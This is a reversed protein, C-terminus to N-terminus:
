VHLSLVVDAVADGVRDDVGELIAAQRRPPLRPLVMRIRITQMGGHAGAVGVPSDIRKKKLDGGHLASEARLPPPM